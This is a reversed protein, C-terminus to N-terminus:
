EGPKKTFQCGEPDIVAAVEGMAIAVTWRETEGDEFTLDVANGAEGEKVEYEGTRAAGWADGEFTGDSKFEVRAGGEGSLGMPEYFIGVIGESVPQDLDIVEVDDGNTIEAKEGCGALWPLGALLFTIALIVVARKM